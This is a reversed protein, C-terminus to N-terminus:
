DEKVYEILKKWTGYDIAVKTQKDGTTSFELLTGNDRADKAIAKIPDLPTYAMNDCPRNDFGCTNDNKLHRCENHPIEFSLRCLEIKKCM